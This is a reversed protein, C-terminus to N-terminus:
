EMQELSKEVETETDQLKKKCFDILTSVRKVKKSLEDVELEDNEIQELTKEIEIIADQYNLKSKAM